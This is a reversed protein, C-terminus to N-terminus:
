RYNWPLPLVYYAEWSETRLASVSGVKAAFFLYVQDRNIFAKRPICKAM